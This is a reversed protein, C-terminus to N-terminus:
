VSRTPASNRIPDLFNSICPNIYYFGQDARKKSSRVRVKNLLLLQVFKSSCLKKRTGFFMCRLAKSYYGQSELMESSGMFSWM